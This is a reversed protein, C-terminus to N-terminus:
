DRVEDDIILAAEKIGLFSLLHTFMHYNSSDLQAQIAWMHIVGKAVPETYVLHVSKNRRPLERLITSM